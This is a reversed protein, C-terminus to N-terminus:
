WRWLVFTLAAALGVCLCVMDLRREARKREEEREKKMKVFERYGEEEVGKWKRKGELARQLIVLSDRGNLQRGDMDEVELSVERVEEMSGGGWTVVVSFMAVESATGREGWVVMAFRVKVEGSLWHRHVTVAKGSSVNVARKSAPDIVIWSLRLDEGLDRCTDDDGVPYKVVDKPDLLDVRFPSCRFWETVTETEVVKSFM